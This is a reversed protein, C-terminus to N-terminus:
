DSSVARESAADRARLIEELEEETEIYGSDQDPLPQDQPILILGVPNPRLDLMAGSALDVGIALIGVGAAGVTAVSAAGTSSATTTGLTLVSAIISSAASMVGYSVVYAGTATAAAGAASSGAGGRGFGSTVEVTATHYGENEVTLTFEARRSVEFSCPTPACSYYAAIHSDGDELEGRDQRAEFRRLARRSEPTELDTTATAGPPDTVIHFDVNPGRIATACAPLCLSMGLVAFQAKLRM